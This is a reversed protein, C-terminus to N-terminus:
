ELARHASDGGGHPVEGGSRRVQRGGEELMLGGAGAEPWRKWNM